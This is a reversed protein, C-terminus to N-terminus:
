RNRARIARVEEDIQLDSIEISPTKSALRELLQAFREDMQDALLAEALKARAEPELQRLAGLLQEFSLEVNPITVTMSM